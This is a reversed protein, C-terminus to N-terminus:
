TVDEWLKLADDAMVPLHQILTSLDRSDLTGTTWSKSDRSFAMWEGDSYLVFRGDSLIVPPERFSERASTV